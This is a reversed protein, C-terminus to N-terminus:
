NTRGVVTSERGGQAGFVIYRNDGLTEKRGKEGRRGGEGSERGSGLVHLARRFRDRM